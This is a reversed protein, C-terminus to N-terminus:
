CLGEQGVVAQVSMLLEQEVRTDANHTTEERCEENWRYLYFINATLVLFDCVEQARQPPEPDRAPAAQSLSPPQLFSAAGETWRPSVGPCRPNAM